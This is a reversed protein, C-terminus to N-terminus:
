VQQGTSQDGQVWQSREGVARRRFMQLAKRVGELVAAQGTRVTEPQQGLMKVGLDLKPLGPKVKRGRSEEGKQEV